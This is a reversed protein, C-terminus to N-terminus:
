PMEWSFCRKQISGREAVWAGGGEFVSIENKNDDRGKGQRRYDHKLLLAKTSVLKSAEFFFLNLPM